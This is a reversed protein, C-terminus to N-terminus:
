YGYEILICIYMNIFTKVNDYFIQEISVNLYVGLLAEVCDAVTKDSVTQVGLYQEMGTQSEVTEWNLVREQMVSKTSESICGDFQENKPIQIEYM